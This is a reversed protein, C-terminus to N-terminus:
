NACRRIILGMMPIGASTVTCDRHWMVRAQTLTVESSGLPSESAHYTDSYGFHESGVICFPFISNATCDLQLLYM